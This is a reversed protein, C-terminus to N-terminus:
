KNDNKLLKTQIDQNIDDLVKSAKNQCIEQQIKLPAEYKEAVKFMKGVRIQRRLSDRYEDTFRVIEHKAKYIQDERDLEQNLETNIEPELAKLDNLYNQQINKFDPKECQLFKENSDVKERLYLYYSEPIHEQNHEKMINITEILENYPNPWLKEKDILFSGHEYDAKAFSHSFVKNLAYRSYETILNTLIYEWQMKVLKQQENQFGEKAELASMKAEFEKKRAESINNMLALNRKKESNWKEQLILINQKIENQQAKLMALREQSKSKERELSSKQLELKATQEQLQQNQFVPRVTYFYGFVSLVLLGIQSLHSLKQLISENKVPQDINNESSIKRIYDKRDIPRKVIKLACM